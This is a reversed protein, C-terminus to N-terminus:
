VLSLLRKEQGVAAEVLQHWEPQRGLFQLPFFAPLNHACPPAACLETQGEPLGKCLPVSHDGDPPLLMFKKSEEGARLIGPYNAVEQCGIEFSQWRPAADSTM